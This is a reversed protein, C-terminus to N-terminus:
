EEKSRHPRPTGPITEDLIIEGVIIDMGVARSGKVLVLDGPQIKEKLLAITQEADAMIHLNQVDFDVELAHEGISRGLEGVTILVDVVDAARRGVIKHGEDTYHGLELMDGLVAVRRGVVTPGLDDLLNLAAV